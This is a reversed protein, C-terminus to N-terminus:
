CRTMTWNKSASPTEWKGNHLENKTSLLCIGIQQLRYVEMGAGDFLLTVAM